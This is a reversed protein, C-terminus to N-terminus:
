WPKGAAVNQEPGVRQSYQYLFKRRLLGAPDDPIRRLWQEAAARAEQEEPTGESDASAAASAPTQDAEPESDDSQAAAAAERYDEAAQQEAQQDRAPAAQDDRASDQNDSEHEDGSPSQSSQDSPQANQQEASEEASSEDNQSAQPNQEGSDAAQNDESSSGSSEQQQADDASSNDQNQEQGQQDQTQESSDEGSQGDQNQQEQQKQQQELLKKVQEHNYRADEHDAQLALTEEYAALADELAGARALANGRNYHDTATNGAAFNEAAAQYDGARYAATGRRQPDPALARAREVDGQALAQASQQDPRQWLDKWGFAQAPAPTGLLLPAVLLPLAALLWGRRFALAALPLLALAIWPGLPYWAQAQNDTLEAPLARGPDGAGLTANLDEDNSTLPAYAGAGARALARLAQTDLRSIVPGEARRIGPVPAGQESGVGIVALRHGAAQLARAAALAREDGADDTILVVEGHTAGAQKLLAGARELALDPRSGDVPMIEPQLADLMATITAADQTLPAVTFADGAFAILGVSGDKVQALIDAVKYRARALRTPTLDTALMSRSLDLVVVRAVGGSFTPVPKREITPNALAVVAILWALGLLIFPLRTTLRNLAQPEITLVPLLRPDIVRRWASNDGTSTASLWLLPALPVLALLWWPNLFHFDSM